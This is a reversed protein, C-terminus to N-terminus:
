RARARDQHLKKIEDAVSVEDGKIQTLASHVAAEIVDADTNYRSYMEFDTFGVAGDNLGLLLTRQPLAKALGPAGQALYAHGTAPDRMEFLHALAAGPHKLACGVVRSPRVQRYDAYAGAVYGNFPRETMAYMTTPTARGLALVFHDCNGSFVKGARGLVANLTDRFSQPAVTGDPAAPIIAAFAQAGNTTCVAGAQAAEVFRQSQPDADTGLIVFMGNRSSAAVAVGCLFAVEDIRYQLRYVPVPPNQPERWNEDDLVLIAAAKLKGARLRDLALPLLQPASLVLLDSPPVGDLLSEAQAPTMRGPGSTAEPMGIDGAGGEQTLAQPVEGVPAYTIRGAKALGAFTADAEREFCGDGLGLDTRVLCVSLWPKAAAPGGKGASARGPTGTPCSTLLM